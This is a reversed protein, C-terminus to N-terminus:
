SSRPHTISMCICHTPRRTYVTTESRRWQRLTLRLLGRRRRRPRPLIVPPQRGQGPAARQRGGTVSATRGHRPSRRHRWGTSGGTSRGCRRWWRRRGQWGVTDAGPAGLTHTTAHWHTLSLHGGTRGDTSCADTQPTHSSVTLGSLRRRRRARKTVSENSQWQHAWPGYDDHAASRRWKKRFPRRAYWQLGGEREHRPVRQSMASCKDSRTLDGSLCSRSFHNSLFM